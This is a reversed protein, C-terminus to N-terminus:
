DPLAGRLDSNTFDTGTLRAGRFNVNSLDTSTVFIGSLRASAFNSNALNAGSIETVGRTQPVLNGNEDSRLLAGDRIDAAELNAGELNASRLNVGRLDARSLDAKRLDAGQLDSAFFDVGVLKCRAFYAHRFSSGSLVAWSLDAGAFNLKSGDHERLIMRQGGSQGQLYRTHLGVQRRVEEQDLRLTM